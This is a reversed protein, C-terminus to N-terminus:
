RPRSRGPGVLASGLPLLSSPERTQQGPANFYLTDVAFDTCNATCSPLSFVLNTINPGDLDIVGIFLADVSADSAETVSGLLTEGNYVDIRVTFIGPADAQIAAGAAAVTASFSLALPGNGGNGADSTWVLSDGANFNPPSEPSWSCSPDATCVVAVLSNSGTLSGTITTGGVSTATFTSGLVTGDPGLQAWDVSDNAGLDDRNTVLLLTDARAATTALLILGGLASLYARHFM